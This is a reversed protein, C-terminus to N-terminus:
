APLSGSLLISGGPLLVGAPRPRRNRRRTVCGVDQSVPNGPECSFMQNLECLGGGCDVGVSDMGTMFGPIGPGLALAAYSGDRQNRCISGLIKVQVFALM